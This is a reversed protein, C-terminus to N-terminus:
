GACSVLDGNALMANVFFGRPVDRVCVQRASIAKFGSVETTSYWRKTLKRLSEASRTGLIANIIFIRDTHVGADVYDGSVRCKATIEICPWHGAFDAIKHEQWHSEHREPSDYLWFAFEADRANALWYETTNEYKM